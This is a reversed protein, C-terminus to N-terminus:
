RRLLERAAAATAVTVFVADVALAVALPVSAPHIGDALGPVNSLIGVAVVSAALMLCADAPRRDRRGPVSYRAWAACAVAVMAMPVFGTLGAYDPDFYGMRARLQEHLTFMTLAALALASALVAVPSRSVPRLNVGFRPAAVAAIVATALGWGVVAIALFIGWGVTGAEAVLGLPAVLQSVWSTAFLVLPGACVWALAAFLWWAGARPRSGPAASPQLTM